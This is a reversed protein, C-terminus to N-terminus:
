TQVQDLEDYHIHFNTILDIIRYAHGSENDFWIVLKITDDNIQCGSKGDVISSHTESAFVGSASNDESMKMCYRMVTKLPPESAAEKLAMCVDRPFFCVFINQM